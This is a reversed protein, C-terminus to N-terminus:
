SFLRMLISDCDCRLRGNVLMLSVKFSIEDAHTATFRHVAICIEANDHLSNQDDISDSAAEVKSLYTSPIWGSIGERNRVKWWESTSQEVLLLLEGEKASLEGEGRAVFAHKVLVDMPLLNM